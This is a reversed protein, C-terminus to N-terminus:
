SDPLHGPVTDNLCKLDVKFKETDIALLWKTNANHQKKHCHENADDDFDSDLIHQKSTPFEDDEDDNSGLNSAMPAGAMAQAAAPQTIYFEPMIYTRSDLNKIVGAEAGQPVNALFAILTVVVTSNDAETVTAASQRTGAKKTSPKSIRKKTAAPKPLQVKAVVPKSPRASSLPVKFDPLEDMRQDDSAPVRDNYPMLPARQTLSGEVFVSPKTCAKKAEPSNPSTAVQKGKGLAAYFLDAHAEDRQNQVVNLENLVQSLALQVVPNNLIDAGIDKPVRAKYLQQLLYALQEDTATLPEAEKAKSKGKEKASFCQKVTKWTTLLPTSSKQALAPLLTLTVKGKGKSTLAAAPQGSVYPPVLLQMLAMILESSNNDVEM